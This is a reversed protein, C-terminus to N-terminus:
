SLQLPLRKDTADYPWQKDRSSLMSAVSTSGKVFGQLFSDEWLPADDETNGLAEILRITLSGTPKQQGAMGSFPASAIPPRIPYLDTVQVIYRHQAVGPLKHWNISPSYAISSPDLGIDIALWILDAITPHEARRARIQTTM